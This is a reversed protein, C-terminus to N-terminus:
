GMHDLTRQVLAPSMTFAFPRALHHNLQPSFALPSSSGRAASTSAGRRPPHLSLMQQFAPMMPPICPCSSSFFLPSSSQSFPFPFLVVRWEGTSPPVIEHSSVTTQPIGAPMPVVAAGVVGFLAIVATPVFMVAARLSTPRHLRHSPPSHTHTSFLSPLACM